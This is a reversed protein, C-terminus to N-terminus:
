DLSICVKGIQGRKEVLAFANMVEAKGFGFVKDVPMRLKKATVFNVLEEMLQKSGVSVGRIICGQTLTLAAVDPMDKQSARSLFGILAVTGGKAICELSQKITGSGGNEFIYDVGSGGTLKLAVKAWDPTKNYNIAHDVGYKDKVFQLKEDSSSTIITVAGAARALVLGVLSM